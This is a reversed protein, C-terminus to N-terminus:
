YYYLNPQLHQPPPQSTVTDIQSQNVSNLFPNLKRCKTLKHKALTQQTACPKHCEPCKLQNRGKDCSHRQFTYADWYSAGCRNCDFYNTEENVRYGDDKGDPHYKKMHSELTATSKHQKYIKKKCIGCTAKIELMRLHMKKIHKALRGKTVYGRPCMDCQFLSTPDHKMMHYRFATNDSFTM